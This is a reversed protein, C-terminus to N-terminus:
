WVLLNFDNLDYIPGTENVYFNSLYLLGNLIKDWNDTYLLVKNINVKREDYKLNKLFCTNSNWTKEIGKTLTTYSVVINNVVRFVIADKKTTDVVTIYVFQEELKMGNRIQNSKFLFLKDGQFYTYTYIPNTNGQDVGTTYKINAYNKQLIGIQNLHLGLVVLKSTDTKDLSTEDFGCDIKVFKDFISEQSHSTNCLILLLILNLKKM